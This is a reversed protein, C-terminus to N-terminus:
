TQRPLLDRYASEPLRLRVSHHKFRVEATVAWHVQLDTRRNVTQHKKVAAKIARKLDVSKSITSKEGEEAWLSRTQAIYLVTDPPGNKVDLINDLRRQADSVDQKAVSEALALASLVHEDLM